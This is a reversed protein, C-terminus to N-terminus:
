AGALSRLNIGRKEFKEVGPIGKPNAEIYERYAADATRRQLMHSAKNRFIWQWFKDWDKVNAVTQLSLSATAKGGRLQDVKDSDMRALIQEELEDRSAKLDNIQKNLVREQERIAHAQDILDGIAVVKPAAKAM